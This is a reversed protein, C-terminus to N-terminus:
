FFDELHFPYSAIVLKSPPIRLKSKFDELQHKDGRELFGSWPGVGYDTPMVLTCSRLNKLNNLDLGYSKSCAISLVLRISELQKLNALSGTLQPAKEEPGEGWGGFCTINLSALRSLNGLDKIETLKECGEVRLDTLNPCRSLPSVYSLSPCNVLKISQLNLSHESIELSQLGVKHLSLVNLNKASQIGSSYTLKPANRLVISSLKEAHELGNIATLNQSNGLEVVQLSKFESFNESVSTLGDLRSEKMSSANKFGQLSHFPQNVKKYRLVELSPILKLHDPKLPHDKIDELIVETLHVFKDIPQVGSLTARQVCEIKEIGLPLDDLNVRINAATLHTLNTFPALNLVQDTKVTEAIKIEKMTLPNPIKGLDAQCTKGYLLVRRLNTAKEIGKAEVGMLELDELHPLNGLNSIFGADGTTVLVKLQRLNVLLTLATFDHYHKGAPYANSYRIQINQLNPVNKKAWRCFVFLGESTLRDNQFAIGKVHTLTNNNRFGHAVAKLQEHLVLVDGAFSNIVKEIANSAPKQNLLLTPNTVMPRRLGKSVASLNAQDPVGLHGAIEGFIDQSVDGLGIRPEEGPRRPMKPTAANPAKPKPQTSPPTHITKVM